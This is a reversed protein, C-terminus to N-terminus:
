HVNEAEKGAFRPDLLPLGEMDVVASQWDGEVAQRVLQVSDYWPSYRRKEFWRWDADFPLLITTFVGMAAALHAVSTDITLVGSCTAIRRATELMDGQIPEQNFPDEQHQLSVIEVGGSGLMQCIPEFVDWPCTRKALTGNLALGKWCVGIRMPEPCLPVKVYPATAEEPIMVGLVHQISMVSIWEDFPVAAGGANQHEVILDAGEVCQSALRILPWPTDLIITAASRRKIEPLYRWMWIHDGLGQEAAIFLRKGPIPSGDWQSQLTPAPRYLNPASTCRRWESDAHGEAWWGPVKDARKLATFSRHLRIVSNHPDIAVAMDYLAKARRWAGLAELAMAAGMYPIADQRPERAIVYEYCRLAEEHRGKISYWSGLHRWCKLEEPYHQLLDQALVICADLDDADVAAQIARQQTQFDM